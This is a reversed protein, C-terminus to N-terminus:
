SALRLTAQVVLPDAVTVRAEAHGVTSEGAAMVM